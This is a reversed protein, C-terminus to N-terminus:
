CPREWVLTVLRAKADHDRNVIRHRLQGAELDWIEIAGDSAAATRASIALGDFQVGLSTIDLTVALGARQAAQFGAM